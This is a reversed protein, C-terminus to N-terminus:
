GGSDLVLDAWVPHHRTFRIDGKPTPVDSWAVGAAVVRWHTTPLVYSVRLKGASEAGFDASPQGPHPDQLRPDALLTAAVERQGAGGDPDLNLNAAIVVPGDVAGLMDLLLRLEDANRYGNRDEPGDFVPATAHATLLTFTGSPAAVDIAWHATTSLRQAARAEASLFPSGDSSVPLTAWPLDAWIDATREAVLTLPYRSLVAMAGQGSFWGYGQADRPGGVTGDGDLDVGSRRGTNPAASLWHAYGARGALTAIAQGGFDYDIGQLVWVDANVDEMQALVHAIDLADRGLDRLFLGPHRRELETHYTAIRVPDAAM